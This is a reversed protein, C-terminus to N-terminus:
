AVAAVQAEPETVNDPHAHDIMRKTESAQRSRAKKSLYAKQIGELCAEGRHLAQPM